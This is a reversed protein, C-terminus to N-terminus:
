GPYQDHVICVFPRAVIPVDVFSMPIKQGNKIGGEVMDSNQGQNVQSRGKLDQLM